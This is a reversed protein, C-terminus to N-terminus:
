GSNFAVKASVVLLVNGKLMYGMSNDNGYLLVSFPLVDEMLPQM